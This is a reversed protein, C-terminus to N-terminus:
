VQQQVFLRAHRDVLGAYTNEVQGFLSAAIGYRMDPTRSLEAQGEPIQCTEHQHVDDFHQYSAAPSRVTSGATTAVFVEVQGVGFLVSAQVQREVLLLDVPQLLRAVHSVLATRFVLVASRELQGPWPQSGVSDLFFFSMGYAYKLVM